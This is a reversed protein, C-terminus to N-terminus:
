GLRHGPSGMGYLAFPLGTLPDLDTNCLMLGKKGPGILTVGAGGSLTAPGASSANLAVSGSISTSGALARVAVTGVTARGTLGTTSSATFENLGARNQVSGTTSRNQVDGVTTRTQVDGLLTAHVTKGVNVETKKVTAVPLPITATVTETMFPGNTPNSNKPGSVTTVWGGNSATQEINGSTVRTMTGSSLDMNAAASLKMESVDSIDFRPAKIQVKGAELKMVTAAKLHMSPQDAEGAGTPVGVTRGGRGSNLPGLAEIVVGGGARLFVGAGDEKRGDQTDVVFAGDGDLRYSEGTPSLGSYLHLGRSIAAEASWTGGPGAISAMVRGSKTVSWWTPPKASGTPPTMKFLMAAHNDLNGPDGVAFGPTPVTGEGFVFPSLPKGYHQRGQLSFPDNGVVTGYVVEIFAVADSQVDTDVEAPNADPLRDADFNDTQETVPLTGNSTHAMEIRYETLADSNTSRFANDALSGDTLRYAVKGGYVGTQPVMTPQKLGASSIFMGRQLFSRPDVEAPLDLVEFVPNPSLRNRPSTNADLESSTLPENDDGMLRASAWEVSDTFMQRPLFTADRQIMGGYIRFGAGAHFQQLSRFIMAQDSDRLRIENARRNSLTASEDLVLDAGQASSALINGPEMHRLKHRIRDAVGEQRIRDSPTQGYEEPAFPQTPMWEYGAKVGPVFWALINPERSHGSEQAKWGILCVDGPQPMAGLFHRAGAGPFSLPVEAPFTEGTETRLLCTMQKANVKVVTAYGNAYRQAGENASIDKPTTSGLEYKIRSAAPGPNYTLKGNGM